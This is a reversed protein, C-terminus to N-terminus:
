CKLDELRLELPHPLPRYESPPLDRLRIADESRACFFLNNSHVKGLMYGQAGMFAELAARVMPGSEEALVLRPRWRKWDLGQLVGLDHGEADVSLFDLQTFETRGLVLDLTVMPMKVKLREHVYSELAPAPMKSLSSLAGIDTIYFDVAKCPRPGLLAQVCVAKRRARLLQFYFPHPEVCVGQWGAQEFALTNSLYWGDMAGVECFVGPGSDFFLSWAISDEGQQGYFRDPM